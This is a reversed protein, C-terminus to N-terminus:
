EGSEEPEPPAPQELPHQHPGEGASKVEWVEIPHVHAPGGSTSITKGNGEADVEAEHDHTPDGASGTTLKQDGLEQVIGLVDNALKM